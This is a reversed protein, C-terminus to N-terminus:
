TTPDSARRRPRVVGDRARPGRPVRASAAAVRCVADPGRCIPSCRTRRSPSSTWRRLRPCWCGGHHPSRWGVCRRPYLLAFTAAMNGGLSHGVLSFEDLGLHDFLDLYHLIYDHVSDISPDDASAGFGPHNPVILRANEALPLLADFGTATGAGHFFVIPPGEGATLVATDIGNIEHHEEVFM